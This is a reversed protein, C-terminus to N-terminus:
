VGIERWAGVLFEATPISGSSLDARTTITTRFGDKFGAEELLKRARALNGERDPAYGPLSALTEPPLAWSGVQSMPGSILGEGQAIIQWYAKRDSALSLAQRVRVDNLPPRRWNPSANHKVLYPQGDIVIEDGLEKRLKAAETPLLGPYRYLLIRGTRLAVVMSFKDPIVMTRYGDLYPRGSVFYDPNKVGDLSVGRIFEKFKLPGTGLAKRTLADQGEAELVHKPLILNWPNAVLPIFSASAYKLAVKVTYPDVVTVEKVSDLNTQRPSTRMGKFKLRIRDLSYKVDEGTFPRGDHWQVGKRLYFTYTLGDGSAEWREALDPVIKKQDLPDYQILNNYFPGVPMIVAYTSEQHPDLGPPDGGVASILVGGYRPKDASPAAPVLAVPTFAPAPTPKAPALAPTPAARDPVPTPTAVAPAQTPAPTPAAAPACASVVLGTILLVSSAALAFRM